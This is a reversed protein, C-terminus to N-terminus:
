PSVFPFLSLSDERLHGVRTWHVHGSLGEKQHITWHHVPLHIPHISPHILTITSPPLSAFSSYKISDWRSHSSKPRFECDPWNMPVQHNNNPNESWMERRRIYTSQGASSSHLFFENLVIPWKMRHAEPSRSTVPCTRCDNMSISDTLLVNILDM